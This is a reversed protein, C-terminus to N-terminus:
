LVLNQANLHNIALITPFDTRRNRIVVFVCLQLVIAYQRIQEVYVCVCVCVCVCIRM